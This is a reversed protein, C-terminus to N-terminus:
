SGAVPRIWAPPPSAAVGIARSRSWVRSMRTAAPRVVESASRASRVAQCAGSGTARALGNVSRTASKLPSRREPLRIATAVLSSRSGVSRVRAASSRVPDTSAVTQASSPMATLGAGSM